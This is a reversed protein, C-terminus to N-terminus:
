PLDEGIEQASGSGSRKEPKVIRSMWFVVLIFMFILFSGQWLYGHVFDFLGPKHYLILAVFVMRVLNLFHIAPVGMLLGIFKERIRAPYAGIISLYIITTYVGTCEAIVVLREGGHGTYLTITSEAITYSYDFHSLCWAVEGAIFSRAAVLFGPFRLTLIYSFLWLVFFLVLFTIFEGRFSRGKRVEGAEGEPKKGHGM